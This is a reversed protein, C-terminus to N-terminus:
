LHCKMLSAIVRREHFHKVNKEARSQKARPRERGFRAGRVKICYWLNRTRRELATHARSSVVLCRTWRLVLRRQREREVWAAARCNSHYSFSTKWKFFTEINPCKCYNNNKSSSSSSLLNSSSIVSSRHISCLISLIFLTRLEIFLSIRHFAIQWEWRETSANYSIKGFPFRTDFTNFMVNLPRWSVVCVCVVLAREILSKRMENAAM